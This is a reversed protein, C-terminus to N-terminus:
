YIDYMLFDFISMETKQNLFTYLAYHLDKMCAITACILTGKEFIIFFRYQKLM